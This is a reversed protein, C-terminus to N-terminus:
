RAFTYRYSLAAGASDSDNRSIELSISHAENFWWAAGGGLTAGGDLEGYSLYGAKARLELSDSVMYRVGVSASVLSDDETVCRGLYCIEIEAGGGAVELNIDASENVPFAAGLGILSRGIGVSSRDGENYQYTGSLTAYFTDNFQLGGALSIGPLAEYGENGIWIEEEFAVAESSIQLYSYDLNSARSEVSIGFSAAVVLGIFASNKKM